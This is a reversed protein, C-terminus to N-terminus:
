KTGHHAHERAADFVFGDTGACPRLCDCRQADAAHYDRSSQSIARVGILQTFATQLHGQFQSAPSLVALPSRTRTTSRPRTGSRIAACIARAYGALQRKPPRCMCGNATLTATPTPKAAIAAASPAAFASCVMGLIRAFSIPPTTLLAAPGSGPTQTM